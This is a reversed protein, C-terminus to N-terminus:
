VVRGSSALLDGGSMANSPANWVSAQFNTLTSFWIERFPAADISLTYQQALTGNSQGAQVQVMPWLRTVMSTLNTFQCPANTLGNDIMLDLALDQQVALQGGIRYRGQGSVQYIQGGPRGASFQVNELAYNLFLPGQSTLRLEFSGWMPVPATVRDCIPCDDTLLSGHVLTYVAKGGNPLTQSRSCIGSRLWILLALLFVV